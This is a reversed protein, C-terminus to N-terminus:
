HTKNNDRLMQRMAAAHERPTLRIKRTGRVAMSVAVPDIIGDDRKYTAWWETETTESEATQLRDATARPASTDRNDRLTREPISLFEAAEAGILLANSGGIAV